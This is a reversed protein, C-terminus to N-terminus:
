TSRAEAFLFEPTRPVTWISLQVGGDEM